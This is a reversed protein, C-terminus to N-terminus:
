ETFLLVTYFSNEVKEINYLILGGLSILAQSRFWLNCANHNRKYSDRTSKSITTSILFALMCSKHSSCWLDIMVSFIERLLLNRNLLSPRKPIPFISFIKVSQLPIIYWYTIYIHKFNPVNKAQTDTQRGKMLKLSASYSM